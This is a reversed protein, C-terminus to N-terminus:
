SGLDGAIAAFSSSDDSFGLGCVAYLGFDPRQLFAPNEKKVARREAPRYL